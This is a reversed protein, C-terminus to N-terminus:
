GEDKQNLFRYVKSIFNRAENINYEKGEADLDKDNLIQELRRDAEELYELIVKM